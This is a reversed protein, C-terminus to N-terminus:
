RYPWAEIEPLTTIKRKTLVDLGPKPLALKRETSVRPEKRPLLSASAHFM